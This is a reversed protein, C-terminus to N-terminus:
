NIIALKLSLSQIPKNNLRNISIRPRFTFKFRHSPTYKTGLTLLQVRTGAFMQQQMPVDVSGLSWTHKKFHGPEREHIKERYNHNKTWQLSPRLLLISM